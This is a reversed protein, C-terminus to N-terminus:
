SGLCYCQGKIETCSKGPDCTGECTPSPVAPCATELLVNILTDGSDLSDIMQFYSMDQKYIIIKVTNSITNGHLDTIIFTIDPLIEYPDSIPPYNVEMYGNNKISIYSPLSQESYISAYEFPTAYLTIYRSNAQIKYLRLKNIKNSSITTAIRNQSSVYKETLNLIGQRNFLLQNKVTQIRQNIKWSSEVIDTIVDGSINVFLNINYILVSSAIAAAMSTGAVYGYGSSTNAAWIMEGPAWGDLEGYNNENATFSIFSPDTYNSFNSPELNQNFSGVTIADEICAPTVHQISVGSNGSSCVVYMGADIMQQIKNNIYQNFPISWSMNVVSSMKGDALYDNLVSNMAELLSSLTLSISDDFIKIIKLKANTVSCTNGAIVSAIATGHGRTDSYEGTISFLTSIDVGYFEPHTLNIGSDMIYVKCPSGRVSITNTPNDFDINATSAVKWWNQNHEIDFNRYTEKKPDLEIYTSLLNLQSSDDQTCSTIMDNITPVYDCSCLYVQGFADFQKLLTINNDLAYETIEQDTMQNNFDLIYNM